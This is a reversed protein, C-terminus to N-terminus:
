HFILILYLISKNTFFLVYSIMLYKLTRENGKLEEPRGDKIVVDGSRSTNLHDKFTEITKVLQLQGEVDSLYTYKEMHNIYMIMNKFIDESVDNYDNVGDEGRTFDYTYYKPISNELEGTLENVSGYGVDDAQISLNTGFNTIASLSFDWAFSEAMGKRVFPLFTSSVKNSIYGADKAKNNMRTIFNYLSLLEPDKKLKKYDESEWKELPHRKIIYNNFGDFDDRDIDWKREEDYILKERLDEDEDYIKRLKAIRENMIKLAEERYADVDINDLLWEKDGEIAKEDVEDYFKRDFKYILKNVLNNKDDRQYIEQVLKRLDGGRDALKKRIEMLENVEGLAKQSALGKANNVLKYLIQLSALPLDSIGRFTSALGKVVAEAKTLGTVLNRQGIFKDAFDGSIKTIERESARILKAEQTINFLLDKRMAVDAKEEATKANKEMDATYILDGILDDIRGFVDATAIYERMDEAFDSLQSNNFDTSTAPRGEYTTKYDDIIGQGEKRMIKIVDVLPAINLSSQATRIATKLINMRERKFEREEEDTVNSKSIQRYVANLKKILEDLPEFGTSETEESVPILRVDEIDATNVSGIAIGKLIMPSQPNKNDQQKIDM